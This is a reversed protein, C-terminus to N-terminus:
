HRTIQPVRESSGSATGLIAPLYGAFVVLGYNRALFVSVLHAEVATYVIFCTMMMVAAADRRKRIQRLMAFILVFLIVAPIVGYWYIVRVFGMDFYYDNRRAGFLTWTYLTGEHFITDYLARIRGTLPGDLWALIPDSLGFVAASVSFELALALLIEAFVYPERRRSLRSGGRLLFSLLLALFLIGAGTNSRTYRYLCLNGAALILYQYWRCRDQWLYLGLIVLMAAMCHCANPHGLGFCWRTEPGHGFNQTLSWVGFVGTGALTVLVAMGALTVWFMVKLIRRPNMDRCAAIFVFIRLLENRGSIRWSVLGLLLAGALCLFEKRDYKTTLVRLFFLAFTLRFVQSPFQPTYASKDAIVELLEILLAAWFLWVAPRELARRAPELRQQLKKPPAFARNLLYARTDAKRKEEAEKEHNVAEEFCAHWKEPQIGLGDPINKEPLHFRAWVEALTRVCPLSDALHYKRFVYPYEKANIDRDLGVRNTLQGEGTGIVVLPEATWAFHPNGSLIHMYYETDVIWTLQEDYRISSRRVIVASPAGIQNATYVTRWDQQLERVFEGSAARTYSSPKRDPEQLAPKEKKGSAKGSDPTSGSVPSSEQVSGSFALDAEPHADLMRVFKELSDPATFRDDHHMIKVYDGAAEEICANWNAVAGAHNEHRLYRVTLGQEESVADKVSDDASDDSLIVELDTYTQEAISHLLRRVGEANGCAPICISVKPM